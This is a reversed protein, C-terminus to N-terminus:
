PLLEQVPVMAITRGEIVLPVSDGPLFTERKRYRPSRTPGSPESLVELQNDVLNVIWYIPLGTRAYIKAKLGRDRSRSSDAVEIVLAIDDKGPHETMRKRDRARGRVVALDPEPESRVARVSSQTRVRWGAPLQESLVEDVLEVTGDHKPNHNMKPVIWGDLLEVRDDETLVGIEGLRHYQEVTFRYVPVPPVRGPKRRRKIETAEETKSAPEKTAKPLIPTTM